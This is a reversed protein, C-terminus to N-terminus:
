ITSRSTGRELRPPPVLVILLKSFFGLCDPCGPIWITVVRDGGSPHMVLALCVGSSRRSRARRRDSRQRRACPIPGRLGRLAGPQRFADRARCPVPPAFLGELKRSERPAGKPGKFGRTSALNKGTGLGEGALKLGLQGQRRPAMRFHRCDERFQRRSCRSGKSPGAKPLTGIQQASRNPNQSIILNPFGAVINGRLRRM